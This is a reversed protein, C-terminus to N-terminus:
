KRNKNKLLACFVESMPLSQRYKASFIDELVPEELVKVLGGERKREVRWLQALKMWQSIVQSLYVLLVMAVMVTVMVDAVRLLM